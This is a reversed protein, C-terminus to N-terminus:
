DEKEGAPLQSLDADIQSNQGPPLQPSPGPTLRTIEDSPLPREASGFTQWWAVHLHESKTYTLNAANERVLAKVSETLSVLLLTGVVVVVCFAGIKAWDPVSSFVLVVLSGVLVAGVIGLGLAMFNLPSQVARVAPVHDTLQRFLSLLGAADPPTDPGLTVDNRAHDGIRTKPRQDPALRGLRVACRM